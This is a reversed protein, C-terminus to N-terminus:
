NGIYWQYANDHLIRKQDAESFLNNFRNIDDMSFVKKVRTGPMDTGFMLATNNIANIKKLVPWPDFDLRGFGSAKIKVGKDALRYLYPISAKRLGVHDISLKPIKTLKASLLELQNPSVQIEITWGALKFARQSFSVIESVSADNGRFLNFRAGAVGKSALEQILNDSADTKVNAIAVYKRDPYKQSIEDLIKLYATDFGQFSGSIIAGGDIDLKMESIHQNYDEYTFPAPLFGNNEELHFRDDIVHFHADFIKM